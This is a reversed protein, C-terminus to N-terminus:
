STDDLSLKFGIHTPQFGLKEYFKHAEPRQADTTLQVMRCGRARAEAIAYRIMEAGLGRGRAISAVRVGEIQARLSGRRSLHHLFTVQLTGLLDSQDDTVVALLQNPDGDINRFAQVYDDCIPDSVIERSKGLEDDALMAVIQPLDNLVAKRFTIKTVM